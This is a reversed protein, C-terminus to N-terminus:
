SNWQMIAYMTHGTPCVVRQGGEAALESGYSWNLVRCEEAGFARDCEPCKVSIFKRDFMLKSVFSWVYDHGDLVVDEDIKCADSLTLYLEAIRQGETYRPWDKPIKSYYRQHNKLYAGYVDRMDEARLTIEAGLVKFDWGSYAPIDTPNTFKLM